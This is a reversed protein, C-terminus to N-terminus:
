RGYESPTDHQPESSEEARRDGRQELVVVQDSPGADLVVDIEHVAKGMHDRIDRLENLTSGYVAFLDSEIQDAQARAKEVIAEAEQRAQRVIDESQGRAEADAGQAHELIRDSEARAEALMRESEAQADVRAKEVEADFSRMLDALRGAMADYPEQKTSDWSQLAVDRDRELEGRAREADSLKTELMEMRERAQKVFTLVQAPDYGRRVTTFAPLRDWAPAAEFVSGEETSM